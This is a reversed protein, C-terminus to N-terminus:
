STTAQEMEKMNAEECCKTWAAIAMPLCTPSDVMTDSSSSTGDDTSEDDSRSRAARISDVCTVLAKQQSTCEKECATPEVETAVPISDQNSPSTSFSTM